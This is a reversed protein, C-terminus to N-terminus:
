ASGEAEIAERVDQDTAERPREDIRVTVDVFLRTFAVKVCIKCDSVKRVLRPYPNTCTM